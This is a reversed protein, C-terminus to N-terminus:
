KVLIKEVKNGTRRVYIGASLDGASVRVGQVTYYEVVADTDEAVVVSEVGSGAKVTVDCVKPHVMGYGDTVAYMVTAYGEGLATVLGNDVSVVDPASSSWTESAIEVGDDKLVDVLIRGTDGKTLTMAPNTMVVELNGMERYNSMTSWGDASKYIDLCGEPVYVVADGPFEGCEWTGPPTSTLAYIKEVSSCNQFCYTGMYMLNRPLNFTKLSSCGRFYNNIMNTLSNSLYVHELSTCNQFVGGETETVNDPIIVSKLSTCGNFALAGVFEVSHPITVSTLATCDSFASRGIEKVSFPIRLEERPVPCRMLLSKDGNYLVGDESSYAPNGEAVDYSALSMCGSFAYDGITEVSAPINISTLSTCGYFAGDGIRTVGDIIDFEGLSSCGSFAYNGIETVSAPLEIQILRSCDSFSSTGIETVSAPIDYCKKQQPCRLIVTLDKNFLAGDVSAYSPNGADVEISELSTCGGFCDGLSKVSAPIYVSQLSTCNSFASNEVAELADSLYVSRLGDCDAFAAFGICTVSGPITVETLAYCGQFASHEISTVSLPISLSCIRKFRFAGYYVSVVSYDTGENEVSAPIVLDEVDDSGSFGLLDVQRDAESRVGYLLGDAAFTDGDAALM